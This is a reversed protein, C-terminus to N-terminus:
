EGVLNVHCTPLALMFPQADRLPNKVSPVELGM